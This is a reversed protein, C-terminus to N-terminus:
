QLSGGAEPVYGEYVYLDGSWDAFISEILARVKKWSLGGYGAGIRPMAISAIGETNALAKMARLAREVAEYTARSRWYDEQTALNFVWLQDDAKWPFVDGPNLQRPEAKCRHRYEAFMAPYRERFGMAIGAGMSGRCNVGHALAQAHHTNAFLDGTVSCMPM